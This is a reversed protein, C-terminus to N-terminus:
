LQDTCNHTKQRSQLFCHLCLQICLADRLLQPALSVQHLSQFFATYITHKCILQFLAMTPSGSSLRHAREM